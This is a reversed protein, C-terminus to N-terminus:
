KPETIEDEKGIAVVGGASMDFRARDREPDVGIEAGPPIVVNKDVIAHKVVAGAGIRVGDLLLANEVTAKGEVHVGPSLVSRRVTGGSVIVGNSLISDIVAGSDGLETVIKAPAVTRGATYVPWQDNYLNFVPEPDVLDMHADFYSDLTGVDRWYGRDRPLSGPVVNDAFDYVHAGGMEVARPIINGGIDHKSERSESDARVVDFLFETEFIYNGMSALVTDPDGPLPKPDTPKERFADIKTTIGREIVGFQSAETIPTRIAAVTVGAKTDIHQELMQAPDMRYIHDAGFVLVHKPHEDHLINLNQFIADASGLFWREGLRM